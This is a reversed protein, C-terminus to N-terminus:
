ARKCLNIPWLSRPPTFGSDMRVLEAIAAAQLIELRSPVPTSSRTGECLSIEKQIGFALRKSASNM